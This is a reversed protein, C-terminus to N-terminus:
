LGAITSIYHSGLNWACNDQSKSKPGASSFTQEEILEVELHGLCDTPQTWKTGQLDSGEWGKVEDNTVQAYYSIERFGKRVRIASPM